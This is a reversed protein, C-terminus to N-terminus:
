GTVLFTLKESLFAGWPPPPGFFQAQRPLLLGPSFLVLFLLNMLASAFLLPGPAKLEQRTPKPLRAM